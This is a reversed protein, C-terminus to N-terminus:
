VANRNNAYYAAIANQAATIDAQAAILTAVTTSQWIWQQPAASAPNYAPAPITGIAVGVAIDQPDTLGLMVRLMEGLVIGQAPNVIGLNLNSLTITEM